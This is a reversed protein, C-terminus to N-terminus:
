FGPRGSAGRLRPDLADRLGDGLLNFGLVTLTLATGVFLALYPHAPGLQRGQDIMRGWSIAQPDSLGLFALGAEALIYGGISVTFIVILPATINPFIHRFMIRRDDAGITRAALVYVEERATLVASRAIRVVSAIGIIGLALTTWYKNPEPVVQAFILLLILPPFAFLADTCRQIIMDVWGGFYASVVGFITGFLLAITAAGAGVLLALRSGHVIRSWVDRGRQDTGLWHDRSPMALSLTVGEGLGEQFRSSPYNLRVTPDQLAQEHLEPSFCVVRPDDIEHPACASAATRIIQNPPHREILEAFAGFCLITLVILAGFGALPKTRVFHLIHIAVRVPLPRDGLRRPPLAEQYGITSQEQAM